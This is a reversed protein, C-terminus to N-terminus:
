EAAPAATESVAAAERQQYSLANSIPALLLFGAFCAGVLTRFFISWGFRKVILSLPYGAVAAGMYAVWGLFGESAGVSNRGVVEAGCLGILMQPGYLFFGTLFVAIWQMWWVAPLAWLLGLLLLALPLPRLEWVLVGAPLLVLVSDAHVLAAIAIPARARGARLTGLARRM